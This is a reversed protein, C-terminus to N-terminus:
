GANGGGLLAEIEAIEDAELGAEPSRPAPVTEPLETRTFVTKAGTKPDIRYCPSAAGASM